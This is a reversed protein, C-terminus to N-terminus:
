DGACETCTPPSAMALHSKCVPGKCVSCDRKLFEDEETFGAEPGGLEAGCIKCEWRITKM